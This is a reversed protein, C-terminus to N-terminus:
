AIWFIQSERNDKPKSAENDMFGYLYCDGILEWQKERVHRLGDRPEGTAVRYKDLALERLVFPAETGDFVAIIDDPRLPIPGLGIYGSETIFFNRSLGVKKAALTYAMAEVGTQFTGNESSKKDQLWCNLIADRGTPSATTLNPISNLNDMVLTRAFAEDADEDTHNPMGQRAELYRRWLKFIREPAQLLEQMSAPELSFLSLEFKVVDIYRGGIGILDYASRELSISPLLKSSAAFHKTSRRHGVRALLREKNRTWDPVWTPLESYPSSDSGDIIKGAYYLPKLDGNRFHKLAFDKYVCQPGSSYDVEIPVMEADGQLGLLGYIKDRDDKCEKSANPVVLELIKSPEYDEPNQTTARMAALDWATQFEDSPNQSAYDRFLVKLAFIAASFDIFELESSGNILTVQPPLAVEQVIWLRNFWDQRLFAGLNTSDVNGWSNSLNTFISEGVVSTPMDLPPNRRDIGWMSLLKAVDRLAYIANSTEETGVGLWALVNQANGYIQSMLAVQFEKEITCKQNICIADAWLRRTRDPYRLRRLAAALSSTIDLQGTPLQIRDVYNAEGWAYSLAEYEPKCSLNKSVLKCHLASPESSAPPLLEIIRIETKPNIDDYVYKINNTSSM